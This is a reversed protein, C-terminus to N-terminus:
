KIFAQLKEQIKRQLENMKELTLKQEFDKVEAMTIGLKEYLALVEQEAAAADEKNRERILVSQITLDVYVEETVKAPAPKAAAENQPEEFAIEEFADEDSTGEPPAHKCAPVPGALALVLLGLFIPEVAKRM